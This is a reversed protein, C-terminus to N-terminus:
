TGFRQAKGHLQIGHICPLIWSPLSPLGSGGHCGVAARSLLVFHTDTLPSPSLDRLSQPIELRWFRADLAGM